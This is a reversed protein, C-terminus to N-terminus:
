RPVPLAIRLRLSLAPSSALVRACPAPSKCLEAFPVLFSFTGAPSGYAGSKVLTFLRPLVAKNLDMAALVAPFARCFVLLCEWMQTHAAADKDALGQMVAAGAMKLRNGAEDGGAAENDPQLVSPAQAALARVATYFAARVHVSGNAALKWFAPKHLAKLERAACGLACRALGLVCVTLIADIQVKRV